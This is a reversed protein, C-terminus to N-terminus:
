AATKGALKEELEKVKGLLEPLRELASHLLTVMEERSVIVSSSLPMSKAGAIIDLVQTIVAEASFDQEPDPEEIDLYQDTM